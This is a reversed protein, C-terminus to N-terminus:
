DYLLEFSDLFQNAAASVNAGGEISLIQYLRNDVLYFHAKGIGGPPVRKSKPIKFVIEKGPYTGIDIDKSSVLQGNVNGVAGSQAGNLLDNPDSQEIIEEPYDSYSALYVGNRNEYAYMVITMPGIESSIEQSSETPEGPFSISFYGEASTFFNENIFTEEQAQQAGVLGERDITGSCDITASAATDGYTARAIFCDNEAAIIKLAIQDNGASIGLEDISLAYRAHTGYYREQQAALRNLEKEIQAYYAKNRYSIFNPIAIAALIGIFAIIWVFGVILLIIVVEKGGAEPYKDQLDNEKTFAFIVFEILAIFGPVSTWFFVLYLIGQMTKGVYFKHGGIGGTFFTILLLVAKSLQKGVKAGCGACTKADVKILQGCQRCYREDPRKIGPPKQAAISQADLAQVTQGKGTRHPLDPPRSPLSPAPSNASNESPPLPEHRGSIDASEMTLNDLDDSAAAQKEISCVAGAKQFAKQIKQCTALDLDKKIVARSSSLIADVKASNNKYLATLNARVDDLTAQDAFQGKFVVRYRDDTM